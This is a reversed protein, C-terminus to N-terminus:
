VRCDNWTNSKAVDKCLQYLINCWLQSEQQKIKKPNSGM